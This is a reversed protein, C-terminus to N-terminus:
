LYRIRTTANIMVVYVQALVAGRGGSWIAVVVCVNVWGSRVGEGM